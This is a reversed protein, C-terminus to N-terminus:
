YGFGSSSSLRYQFGAGSSQGSSGPLLATDVVFRLLMLTCDGVLECLMM